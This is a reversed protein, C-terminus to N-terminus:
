AIPTTLSRNCQSTRTNATKKSFHNHKRFYVLLGGAVAIVIAVSAVVVSATPFFESPQLPASAMDSVDFNVTKSAGINGADDWAYITLNHTGVSLGTLTTNGSITVNDEGDLSYTAQSIKESATFNLVVEASTYTGNDLSIGSIIPPVSDSAPSSEPTGAGSDVTFYVADIWSAEYDSSGPSTPKFPAGPPNAGHFDYLGAVIKATIFHSGESLEPLAVTGSATYFLHFEKNPNYVTWPIARENKGDISYTLTYDLGGFSFTVHLTLFRSNYTTNAPSLIQVVSHSTSSSTSDAKVVHLGTPVSIFLLLALLLTRFMKPNM